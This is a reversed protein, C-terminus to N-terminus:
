FTHVIGIFAAREHAGSLVNSDFDQYRVGFQANTRPALRHVIEARYAKQHSTDDGAILLSRAQTYTSTLNLSSRSTVTHSFSVTAGKQTNNSDPSGVLAFATEGVLEETRVNFLSVVISNRAGFLMISANQVTNLSIRQGFITTANATASPLGQRSIIDQVTRSRVVPDSIRTSLM